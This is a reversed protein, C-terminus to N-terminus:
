GAAAIAATSTPPQRPPKPLIWKANMAQAAFGYEDSYENIIMDTPKGGGHGANHDVRLLLPNRQPSDPYGALTHQLTAIMKYSHLPVVRDDHDATTLMTAPYQHSGAPVRVNHLPSYKYLYEFMTKNAPDGYETIWAHGITFLQYRLMDYVGVQSIVAAFMSPHQNLTAGMLLGGNSGGQITLKAPSTWNSTQLYQACSAFDDFSNQKELLHGHEWWENGYEGGGRIGAIAYVGGYALIFAVRSVSFTPETVIGYGGYAYLYTPNSGDFVVDKHHVIFMPIKVSGDKSPVFVQTTNLTSMNYGGPVVISSVHIPDVTPTATDYTFTSGADTLSEYSYYMESLSQRACLEKVNGYGPMPLERVLVGTALSRLQLIASVDRMYTVLLADGKLASSGTLIDKEHEPLIVQWDEPALGQTINARVIKSRPADLDTNFTWLTGNNAIVGYSASFDDILKVVPLPTTSNMKLDYSSLDLSGSPKKPLGAMEVYWLKNTPETGTSITILLYDRDYTFSASISWSPHDPLALVFIDEDQSTGVEHYWLQQDENSGTNQGRQGFATINPAPYQNYFFGKSDPAWATASFKVNGLTDNMEQSTGNQNVELIKIREWDSGGSSIAYAVYRGDWSFSYDNLAVTGDTSFTNPDLLVTSDANTNPDDTTYLVSQAQLGSNSTYYWRLVAGPEHDGRQFPCSTKPFNFMETMLAKFNGRTDAGALVQNTLNMQAKVFALTANSDTDELWRYPDAVETGLFNDTVNDRYVAPYRSPDVSLGGQLAGEIVSDSQALAPRCAVYSLAILLLGARCAAGACDKM